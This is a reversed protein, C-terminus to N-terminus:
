KLYTMKRVINKNNLSLSYIYVGSALNAPQWTIEYVGADRDENVLTSIEEGLVSFIKLKVLGREPLAFSIKTSPNFPNPYNQSLEFKDPIVNKDNVATMIELIQTPNQESNGVNDQSLIYFKYLINPVVPINAWGSDSVAALNYPGDNNAVYVLSNKAGSGNGDNITWAVQVINEGPARVVYTPTTVPPDLDLTNLAVNTALWPNLDFKIVARNALQTGTPLNNKPKVIFKVWGEGEPPTVNPPLEINVFHWTLINGQQSPVGMSHSMAGFQVSSIDYVNADLTDIILIEYAAATAEKKNEFFITYMMPASTAMFGQEGFGGPGEKANPDWSTVKQLEKEQKDFNGNVYDEMGRVTNGLCDFIDKALMVPWAVAHGTKEIIESAAKKAVGKLPTEKTFNPKASNKVCQITADLLPKDNAVPRWMEYCGEVITNSVFEELIAGGVWLAIATFTIPETVKAFEVGLESTLIVDFNRIENPELGQVLFIAEDKYGDYNLSDIPIEITNGTQIEKSSVSKIHVGRNTQLIYFFNDTPLSSNNWYSITYRNPPGVRIQKRGGIAGSISPVRVFGETGIIIDGLGNLVPNSQTGITITNSYTDFTTNLPNSIRSWSNGDDKSIYVQIQSENIGNLLNDDYKLTLIYSGIPKNGSLKWWRKASSSANPHFSNNHVTFKITDVSQQDTIKMDMNLVPSLDLNTVNGWWINRTQQFSGENVIEGNNTLNKNTYFKSDVPVEIKVGQNITIDKNAVFMGNVIFKGSAPDGTLVLYIPADFEGYITNVKGNTELRIEDTFIKSNNYVNSKTKLNFWWGAEPRHRITGNNILDGWIVLDVAYGTHEIIKSQAITLNGFSNMSERIRMPNSGVLIYNGDLNCGFNGSVDIEGNSFIKGKSTSSCYLNYKPNDITLKYTGMNLVDDDDLRFCGLSDLAINSAAIINGGNTEKRINQTSFPKSGSIYQDNQNEFMLNDVLLTGNNIVNGNAKVNLWWGWDPRHRVTGNNILDGWIILDVPSGQHEVIKGSAITFNGLSNMSGRIRMPNSGVLIYNGDLNCGFNGSVDIEGNSFIKGNSSYSCYINDNPNDITLKYTGMNLVDNEGLWFSGLSDLAINSAAIINGGITEKRINQTSFPNSGSIYQDNQNEFMLNDVILSGNNIVNGKARVNLWWGAAPQHRLTGNNTLTGWVNLDVPSGNHELINGTNISLNNCEVTGDLLVNGQIVVDNEKVPVKGGIWTTTNSWLGGSTTSYIQAFSSTNVGLFLIFLWGCIALRRSYDIVFPSVFTMHKIKM